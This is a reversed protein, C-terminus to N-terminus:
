TGDQLDKLLQAAAEPSLSAVLKATSSKKKAAKRKTKKPEPAVYNNRNHRWLEIIGALDDIHRDVLRVKLDENRM